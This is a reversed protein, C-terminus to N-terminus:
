KSPNFSPEQPVAKEFFRLLGSARRPGSEEELGELKVAAQAIQRRLPTKEPLTGGVSYCEELSDPSYSLEALVPVGIAREVEGRPVSVGKHVGNLVLHVLDEDVGADRLRQAARKSEFLAQVTPTTVLVVSHLDPLLSMAVPNLRGLDIVVKDYARRSFRMVHRVCEANLETEPTLSGPAQMLDLVDGSWIMGKWLDLDLRHLNACLDVISYPSASRLLFGAGASTTELDALLVSHPKRRALELAYHCAFTTTGVGGKAGVVGIMRAGRPEAAQGSTHGQRVVAYRLARALDDGNLRGKVLYDQAGQEVAKLAMSDSDVGTLLVIPLDPAHTRLAAFTDLGHSDPLSLDVLAADFQVRSLRELGDLLTEAWEVSFGPGEVDSLMEKVLRADGPNDEILLIDLRRETM